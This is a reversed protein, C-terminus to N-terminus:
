VDGATAAAAVMYTGAEIRDPIPTYVTSHLKKVGEIKIVNSGAGTIRAGMSNMFNALDVIEPELAANEIYTTGEALTAAMM